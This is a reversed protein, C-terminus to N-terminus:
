YALFGEACASDHCNGHRSMSAKLDNAKLMSRWEYSTYQCGRDSHVVGGAHNIRRWGAM